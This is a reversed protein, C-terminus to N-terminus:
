IKKYNHSVEHIRTQSEEHKSKVKKKKKKYMKKKRERTERGSQIQWKTIKVKKNSDKQISSRKDRQSHKKTYSMM